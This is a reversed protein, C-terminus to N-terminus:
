RYYKRFGNKSKLVLANCNISTIEDGGKHGKYHIEDADKLKIYDFVYSIVNNDLKWSASFEWVENQGKYEIYGSFNGNKDYNYLVVKEETERSWSGILLSPIPLNRDCKLANEKPETHVITSCLLM